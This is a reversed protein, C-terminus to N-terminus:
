WRFNVGVAPGNMSLSTVGKSGLDYDIYRWVAVIDGWKFEYGLGGILQYTLDSQGTGIDAYYPIYWTRQEGLRFRGAVGIIADWYSMDDTRKGSRDPLPIDAVNGSLNWKLSFRNDLLRAGALVALSGEPEERLMYTGALTWVLGKLDVNVNGSVDVPLRGEPGIGISRTAKKSNGIDMYLVDTYFGWPGKQAWFSGMFTMKLNDLITNIDVTVQSGGGQEPFTSKGSIDPFYGYL